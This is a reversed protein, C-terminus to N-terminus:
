RNGMRRPSSADSPEGPLPLSAQGPKTRTKSTPKRKSAPADPMAQPAPLHRTRPSRGGFIWGPLIVNWESLDSVSLCSGKFEWSPFWENIAECLLRIDKDLRPGSMIFGNRSPRKRLGQSPGAGPINEEDRDEDEDVEIENGSEEWTNPKGSKVAGNMLHEPLNPMWVVADGAIHREDGVLWAACTLPPLACAATTVLKIHKPTQLLINRLSVIEYPPPCAGGVFQIHIEAPSAQVAAAVERFWTTADDGFNVIVTQIKTSM